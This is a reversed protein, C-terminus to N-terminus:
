KVDFPIESKWMLTHLPSELTRSLSPSLQFCNRKSVLHLVTNVVERNTVQGVEILGILVAFKLNDATTMRVIEDPRKIDSFPPRMIDAM